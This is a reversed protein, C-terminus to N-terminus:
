WVNIKEKRIYELKLNGSDYIKLYGKETMIEDETQNNNGWGKEILKHKQTQYRTFVQTSHSDVWVYNPETIPNSAVVHFGINRYVDGSFKTLNVYTLISKPNYKNVKELLRAFQEM